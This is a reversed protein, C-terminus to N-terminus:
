QGAAYAVLGLAVAVLTTAILLFRLTFRLRIAIIWPIVGATAVLIGVFWLPLLLLTASDEDPHTGCYFGWLGPMEEASMALQSGWFFHLRSLKPVGGSSVVLDGREVSMGFEHARDNANWGYTWWYSRVSLACLLLCAVGCFVSFAIRPKRYTM